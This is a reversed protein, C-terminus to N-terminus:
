PLVVIRKDEEIRFRVRMRKLNDLADALTLNREMEGTFTENPVNSEYRVEV